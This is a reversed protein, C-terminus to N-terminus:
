TVGPLKFAAVFQMFPGFMLRTEIVRGPDSAGHIISFGGHRYDGLVGFHQAGQDFRTVVIDGPAMAERPLEIMHLGALRMLTHGDPTEPYGRVDFDAPVLSLERAVGIVLGICDVGVHKVRAQHHFPTDVWSRAAAVVQQRGVM